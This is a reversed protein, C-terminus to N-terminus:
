TSSPVVQHPRSPRATRLALEQQEAHVRVRARGPLLRDVAWVVLLVKV